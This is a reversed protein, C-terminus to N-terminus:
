YHDDADGDAAAFDDDYALLCDFCFLSVFWCVPLPHDCVRGCPSRTPGISSDQGLGM